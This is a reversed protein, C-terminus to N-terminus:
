IKAGCDFTKVFIFTEKNPFLLKNCNKEYVQHCRNLSLAPPSKQFYIKGALVIELLHVIKRGVVM